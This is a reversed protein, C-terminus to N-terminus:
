LLCSQVRQVETGTSSRALVDRVVVGAVLLVVGLLIGARVVIRWRPPPPRQPNSLAM